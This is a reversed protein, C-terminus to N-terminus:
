YVGNQAKGSPLYNDYGPYWITDDVVKEILDDDILRGINLWKAERVVAIAIDRSVERLNSQDPYLAGTEFRDKTVHDSLM